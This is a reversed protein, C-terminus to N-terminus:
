RERNELVFMAEGLLNSTHGAAEPFLQLFERWASQLTHAAKSLM